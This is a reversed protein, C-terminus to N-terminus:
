LLKDGFVMEIEADSKVAIAVAAKGYVGFAIFDVAVLHEGEEGLEELKIGDDGSDHGVLTEEVPSFVVVDVGFDGSDAIGVDDGGHEFFIDFDAGFLVAM